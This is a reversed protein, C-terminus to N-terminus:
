SFKYSQINLTSLYYILLNQYKQFKTDNIIDQIGHIYLIINCYISTLRKNRLTKFGQINLTKSTEYISNLIVLNSQM